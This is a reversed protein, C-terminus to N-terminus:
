AALRTLLAVAIALGVVALLGRAFMILFPPVREPRILRRDLLIAYVLRQLLAILFAGLLPLLFMAAILLVPQM